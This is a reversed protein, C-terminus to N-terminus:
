AQFIAHAYAPEHQDNRPSTSSVDSVSLVSRATSVYAGDGGADASWALQLDVDELLKDLKPRGPLPAALPYRSNVRQRIQEVTLVHSGVLAGQSLKLARAADMNRPYLEQRSSVAAGQSAAAALRVLRTDKPPDAEPPLAVERLMEVIRAPPVLPDQRAIEDAKHGLAAAYDGLSPDTAVLANNGDRRLHFKPVELQNETEVAARTVARARRTALPDDELSGRATRLSQCLEESSM